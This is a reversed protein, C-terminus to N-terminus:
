HLPLLSLAKAFDGLTEYRAPEEAGAGAGPPKAPVAPRAPASFGPGREPRAGMGQASQM